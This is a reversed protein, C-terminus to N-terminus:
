VAPRHHEKLIRHVSAPSIGMEEAIERVTAGDHHLTMLQM